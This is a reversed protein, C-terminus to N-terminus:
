AIRGGLDGPRNLAAEAAPAIPNTLVASSPTAACRRWISAMVASIWKRTSSAYGRRRRHSRGRALDVARMRNRIWTPCIALEDVFVARGVGTDCRGKAETSRDKALIREGRPSRAFVRM